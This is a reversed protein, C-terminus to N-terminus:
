DLVMAVIVQLFGAIVFIIWSEQWNGKWFSYIFFIGIATIWLVGSVKGIMGEKKQVKPDRYKLIDRYSSYKIM